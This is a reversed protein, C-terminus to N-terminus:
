KGQGLVRIFKPHLRQRNEAIYNQLLPSRLASDSLQQINAIKIRGFEGINAHVLTKNNLDVDFGLIISGMATQLISLTPISDNIFVGYSMTKITPSKSVFRTLKFNCEGITKGNGIDSGKLVEFGHITYLYKLCSDHISQLSYKAVSDLAAREQRNFHRIIGTDGAVHGTGSLNYNSNKASNDDPASCSIIAVILVISKCFTHNM